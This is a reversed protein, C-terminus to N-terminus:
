FYVISAVNAYNSYLSARREIACILRSHQLFSYYFHLSFSSPPKALRRYYSLMSTHKPRAIARKLLPISVIPTQNIYNDTPKYKAVELHSLWGYQHISYAEGFSLTIRTNGSDVILEVDTNSM